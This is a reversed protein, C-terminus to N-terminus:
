MDRVHLKSKLRLWKRECLQMCHVVHRVKAVSYHLALNMRTTTTTTATATTPACRARALM